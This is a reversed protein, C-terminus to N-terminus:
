KRTFKGNSGEYYALHYQQAFERAAQRTADSFSMNGQKQLDDARKQSKKRLM